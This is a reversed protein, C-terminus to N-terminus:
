PPQLVTRLDLLNDKLVYASAGAERAATRTPEDGHVTVVVVRADPFEARIRRTASIGDLAPMEVDMVVVDPRHRRYAALAESGDPCEYIEDALDAVIRGIMRRMVANDDVILLVM